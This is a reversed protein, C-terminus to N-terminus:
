NDYDPAIELPKVKKINDLRFFDINQNWKNCVALYQRGGQVSIYIKLPIVTARRIKGNKGGALELEVEQHNHIATLLDLIISSDFSFLIYRHKFMFISPLTEFKDMLFSGIVGLPNDETFFSIADRWADLDLDSDPLCYVLQKGQKEATVLGLETYEKLKKRLTSEDFAEAIEFMPLYETDICNLIQPITWANGDALIDLLLFHLSIDNKTFGSAKWAKHLPNNPIHRSDVTLFVVKGSADQRFSMYESLWSEVRRKENDYSRASKKSFQERSKFGYVYFDRMYDRVRDFNKILESFKSLKAAGKKAYRGSFAQRKVGVANSAPNQDPGAGRNM